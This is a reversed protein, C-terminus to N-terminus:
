FHLWQYQRGQDLVQIRQQVPKLAVHQKLSSRSKFPVMAEDIAVERHPIYNSLFLSKILDLVPWVKALHDHGDQDQPISPHM